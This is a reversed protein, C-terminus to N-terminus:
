QSNTGLVLTRQVSFPMKSDFFRLKQLLQVKSNASSGWGCRVTQLAGGAARATQERTMPGPDDQTSPRRTSQLINLADRAEVWSIGTGRGWTRVVLVAELGQRGGRSAFDGGRSGGSHLQGTRSRLSLVGLGQRGHRCLRAKACLPRRPRPETTQGLGSGTCTGPFQALGTSGWGTTGVMAVCERAAPERDGMATHKPGSCQDRGDKWPGRLSPRAREERCGTSLAQAVGPGQGRESGM